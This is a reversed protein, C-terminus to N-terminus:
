KVVLTILTNRVTTGSTAQLTFPYTGPSLAAGGSSGSGCGSMGALVVMAIICGLITQRLRARQLSAIGLAALLLTLLWKIKASFTSPPTGSFGAASVNGNSDVTITVRSQSSGDLDVSPSSFSCGVGQPAGMCTFTVKGTFGGTPTVALAYSATSGASITATPPAVVLSFGSTGCGLVVGAQGTLQSATDTSIGDGNALALQQMYASLETNGADTQGQQFDQLATNLQALLSSSLQSDTISAAQTSNILAQVFDVPTLTVSMSTNAQVGSSGKLWAKAYINHVGCTDPTFFSRHYYSVGPDMYSITQVDFMKGNKGPDGDYYAINVSRAPAGTSEVAAIVKTRQGLQVEANTSLSLRQLSASGPAAAGPAGKPLLFFPQHIPYMGVNNSHAQTKVQYIQTLGPSPIATLGHDPMEAAPENNTGNMWAVVWFVMQLKGNKTAPFNSPAFDVSVLRWNPSNNGDSSEFGPISSITNQGIEFSDGCLNGPQCAAGTKWNTCSGESSPSGSCYLQGYFRVQVPASTDVLSYNYVRAILTLADDPSAEALNPSSPLTLSQLGGAPQKTIYFGKMFYFQQDIPSAETPPEAANFTAQQANKDWNWREPHNLAVDPQTYVHQWWSESGSCNLESGDNNLPNAIYGTFLPGIGGVVVPKGDDPSGVALCGDTAPSQGFQCANQSAPHLSNQLGFIYQGFGYTCCQSTYGFDPKTITIGQSSSLSSTSENLTNLSTSAAVDLSFNFNAADVGSVGAGESYSMSLENSFSSTSGSSRNTGEGQNWTTNATQTGSGNSMCTATTTLPMLTDTFRSQLQAESWPYSLVNGPEHVPQYWDQTNSDVENYTINDPVSFVVYTPDNTGTKSCNTGNADCGLVPYYYVNMGRQTYFIFDSFGTTATLGQVSGSYHSYTKSVTEDHATKTTDKISESANELGDNFTASEGVSTKTSIGWSSTSSQKGSKISTEDFKFTTAFGAAGSSPPVSPKVSVNFVCPTNRDNCGPIKGAPISYPKIWDVHMPPISMVLSPQIQKLIRVITPSGLRLSRGQMDAPVLFGLSPTDPNGSPVGSTNDSLQSLWDTTTPPNSPFPSPVNINFINIHPAYNNVEGVFEYTEIQLGPNHTKDQNQHDFNGVWINELHDNYISYHRLTESEWDFTELLGDDPLFSGIEIYSGELDGSSTETKIGLVLQENTQQPWFAIPAAQALAGLQHGNNPFRFFPQDETANKMPVAAATFSGNSAPTIKVPIVSYGTTASQNDITSIQGFVVLDDITVGNAGCAIGDTACNRFKGAALAVQGTTMTIDFTGGALAASLKVTTIQTIAFTNPDVSYFAVTQYDNLLAAIEDRGDGNFDGVVLTGAVPATLTNPSASLEPGEKFNWPKTPNVPPVVMMGWQVEPGSFKTNEYFALPEVLGDGSFDGMLVQTFVTGNPSFSSNLKSSAQVATSDSISFAWASGFVYLVGVADTSTNFMRGAAESALVSNTTDVSSPISSQAVDINQQTGSLASNSTNMGVLSTDTVGNSTSFQLMVLDDNRLLYKWGPTVDTVNSMDPATTDGSQARLVPCLVMATLVALAILTALRRLRYGANRLITSQSSQGRECKMSLANM